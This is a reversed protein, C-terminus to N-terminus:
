GNLIGLFPQYFGLFPFLMFSGGLWIASTAAAPSTELTALSPDDPDYRVDVTAGVPYRDVVRQAGENSRFNGQSFQVRSGTFCKGGVEYEYDIDASHRPGKGLRMTAESHLIRGPASPWTQSQDARLLDALAGILVSAGLPFCVTGLLLFAIFPPTPHHKLPFASTVHYQSDLTLMLTLLGAFVLLSIWGSRRVLADLWTEGGAAM